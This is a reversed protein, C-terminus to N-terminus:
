NIAKLLKSNECFIETMSKWSLELYAESYFCMKLLFKQFRVKWIYLLYSLCPCWAHLCTLYKHVVSMYSMHARWTYFLFARSCAFMCASLWALGFLMCANELYWHSNLFPKLACCQKSAILSFHRLLISWHLNKPANLLDILPKQSGEVHSAPLLIILRHSQYCSLM